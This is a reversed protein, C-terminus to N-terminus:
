EAKAEALMTTAGLRFYMGDTGLAILDYGLKRYHRAQEGTIAFIGALKGAAHARALIDAAAAQNDARMPDVSAGDSLAISLDSPGIFVADIGPVALIEDLAQLAARTEIMAFTLTAANTDRLFAAGDSVGSLQMARVPGWSREGLPPYKAATAFARADEASNIMPAIIASAGMDLARSAMAFDGVPIRVIAPVGALAVAGIGRMVSVPDHLGHQMDLTVCDFGARAASEAILPEPTAIWATLCAGRSRLVSVLSPMAM